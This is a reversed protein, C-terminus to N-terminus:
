HPTKAYMLAHCLTQKTCDFHGSTVLAGKPGMCKIIHFISFVQFFTDVRNILVLTSLPLNKIM